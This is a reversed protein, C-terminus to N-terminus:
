DERSEGENLRMWDSTMFSLIVGKEKRWDLNWFFGALVYLASFSFINFFWADPYYGDKIL